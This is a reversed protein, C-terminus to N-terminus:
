PAKPLEEINTPPQNEKNSEEKNPIAILLKEYVSKLIMMQMNQIELMNQLMGLMIADQKPMLKLQNITVGKIIESLTMALVEPTMSPPPTPKNM